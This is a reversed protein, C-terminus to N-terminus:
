NAVDVPPTCEVTPGASCTVARELDTQPDTTDFGPSHFSYVVELQNGKATARTIDVTRLRDHISFQGCDLPEGALWWGAATAVVLQCSAGEFSEHTIRLLGVGRWPEPLKRDDREFRCSPALSPTADGMECMEMHGKGCEDSRAERDRVAERWRLALEAIAQRCFAAEDGIADTSGDPLREGVDVM